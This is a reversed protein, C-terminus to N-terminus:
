AKDQVAARLLVPAMSSGGGAGAAAGTGGDKRGLLRTGSRQSCVTGEYRVLGGAAQERWAWDGAEGCAGDARQRIDDARKFSERQRGGAMHATRRACRAPLGCAGQGGRARVWACVDPQGRAGGGDAAGRRLLAGRRHARGRAARSAGSEEGRGQGERSRGSGGM